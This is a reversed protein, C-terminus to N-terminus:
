VRACVKQGVTQRDAQVRQYALAVLVDYVSGERGPSVKNIVGFKIDGDTRRIAVVEDMQFSNRRNMDYEIGEQVHTHAHTHAHTHTHTHTHTRAHTNTNVHVYTFVCVCCIQHLRDLLGAIDLVCVRGLVRDLVWPLVRM